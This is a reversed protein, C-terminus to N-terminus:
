LTFFDPSCSLKTNQSNKKKLIEPVKPNEPNSSIESGFM